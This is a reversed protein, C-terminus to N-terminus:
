REPAIEFVVRDMLPPSDRLTLIRRRLGEETVQRANCHYRHGAATIEVVPNKLLNQCWHKGAVRGSSAYFKGDTYVFRLEVTRPAGTKRGVTTLEGVFIEKDKLAM